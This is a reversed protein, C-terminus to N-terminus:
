MTEYAHKRMTLVINWVNDLDGLGHQFHQWGHGGSDQFLNDLKASAVLDFKNIALHIAEHSILASVKAPVKREGKWTRKNCNIYVNELGFYDVYLMAVSDRQYGLRLNLCLFRASGSPRILRNRVHSRKAM